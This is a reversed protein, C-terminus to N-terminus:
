NEIPTMEAWNSGTKAEVFVPVILQVATEMTEKLIAAIAQAEKEPAELVLEDHVTLIMRAKSGSEKLRNDLSCMAKKLIEAATGQIPLNLAEREAASRLNYNGATLNPFPRKRGFLTEGYGNTRADNLVKDLYTRLGSFTKFYQEIYKKAEDVSINLDQSFGYAGKGYLISFNIIKATRRDVGMKEATEKHFDGGTNFAEILAADGSLHAAVRLEIQSYDASILCWGKETIFAKRIRRGQESKTPINQLNPNRSSVRGTSTDPAYSTHVRGKKDVIEQLPKIYTNLLKTKERYTLLLAAIPHEEAIKTLTDADTTFGTKGKRIHTTPIKMVDYLIFGVQQPSDPNFPQGALEQLEATITGIETTFEAELKALYPVDIKVGYDEMTRLVPALSADIRDSECEEHAEEEVAALAEEKEGFVDAATAALKHSGPLEEILSKFGLKRFLDVLNEPQLLELRCNDLSFSIKADTTITALKHSLRADAEHEKLKDQVGTKVGELPGKALAKYLADITGFQKLLQTATVEGIGKVGPINDSPDGRLAKYEIMQIPDFGYKEQVEKVTFLTPKKPLVAPAYMLTQETVLQLLDQDSSLIITRVESHKEELLRSITGIMDDAELGEHTFIPAEMTEVIEHVVPVQSVLDEPMASRTGKYDAFMEHRFTPGPLDFAIALHTPKLNRIAGFLIRCFGFTAGVPSGDPATLNKPFAHYARYILANGDVILLTKEAM